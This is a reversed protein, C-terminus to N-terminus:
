KGDELGLDIALYPFLEALKKPKQMEQPLQEIFYKQAIRNTERVNELYKRGGDDSLQHARNIAQEARILDEIVQKSEM